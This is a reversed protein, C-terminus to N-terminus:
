PLVATFLDVATAGVGVGNHLPELFRQAQLTPPTRAPLVAHRQLHLVASSARLPGCPLRDLPVVRFELVDGINCLKAPRV